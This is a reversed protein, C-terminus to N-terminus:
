RNRAFKGHPGRGKRQLRVVVPPNTHPWSVSMKQMKSPPNNHNLLKRKQQTQRQRPSHATAPPAPAEVDPRPRSRISSSKSPWCPGAPDGVVDLVEVGLSRNRGRRRHLDCQAWFDSRGSRRRPNSPRCSRTVVDSRRLGAVVREPGGAIVVAFDPRAGSSVGALALIIQLTSLSSSNGPSSTSTVARRARGVLGCGM